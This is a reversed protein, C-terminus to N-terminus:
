VTRPTIGAKELIAKALHPETVGVAGVAAGKKGVANALEGASVPLRILPVRYYNTRDGVRKHTNQSTDEAEVVVRIHRGHPLDRLAGCVLNVGIVTGGARTALGLLGLIKGAAARKEYFDPEDPLRITEPGATRKEMHERSSVPDTKKSNRQVDM